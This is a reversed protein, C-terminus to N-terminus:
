PFHLDLKTCQCEVTGCKSVPLIVKDALCPNTTCILPNELQNEQATLALQLASLNTLLVTSNNLQIAARETSNKNTVILIRGRGFGGRSFGMRKSLNSRAEFQDSKDESQKGHDVEKQEKTDTTQVLSRSSSFIHSKIEPPLIIKLDSLDIAPLHIAVAAKHLDDNVKHAPEINFRNRLRQAMDLHKESHHFGLHGEKLKQLQELIEISRAKNDEIIQTVEEGVIRLAEKLYIPQEISVFSNCIHKTTEFNCSGKTCKQLETKIGSKEAWDLVTKAPSDSVSGSFNIKYDSDIRRIMEYFANVKDLYEILYIWGQRCDSVIVRCTDEHIHLRDKDFFTQARASCTYCVAQSRIIKFRGLCQKQKEVMQDKNSNIWIIISDM